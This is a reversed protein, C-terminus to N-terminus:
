RPPPAHPDARRTEVLAMELVVQGDVERVMKVPPGPLEKGFWLRTTTQAGDVAATIEYRYAEFRGAPVDVVDDAITTSERPFHAHSELERWTAETTRPEGRPTGDLETHVDRMTTGADDVTVFETTVYFPPQGAPAMRYKITSGVALNDALEGPPFPVPALDDRLEVLGDPYGAPKPAPASASAEPTTTSSVPAAGGCSCVLMLAAFRIRM